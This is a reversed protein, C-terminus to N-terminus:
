AEKEQRTPPHRPVFVHDFPADGPKGGDPHMHVASHLTFGCVKCSGCACRIKANTKWASDLRTTPCTLGVGGLGLEWESM